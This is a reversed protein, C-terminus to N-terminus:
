LGWGWSVRKQGRDTSWFGQGRPFGGGEELDKGPTRSGERLVKPVVEWRPSGLGEMTLTGEWMGRKGWHEGERQGGAM